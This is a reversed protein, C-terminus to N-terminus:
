ASVTPPGQQMIVGERSLCIEPAEFLLNIKIFFAAAYSQAVRLQVIFCFTFLVFDVSVNM